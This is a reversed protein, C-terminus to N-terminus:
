KKEEAKKEQSVPEEAPIFTQLETVVEQFPAAEAGKLDVRSLFVLANKAVAPNMSSATGAHADM